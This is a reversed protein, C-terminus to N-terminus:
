GVNPNFYRVINDQGVDNLTLSHTYVPHQQDDNANNSAIVKDDGTYHEFVTDSFNVSNPQFFNLPFLTINEIKM